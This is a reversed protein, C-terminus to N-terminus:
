DICHPQLLPNDDIFKRCLYGTSGGIIIWLLANAIGTQIIFQQWLEMLIAVAHPDPHSFGHIEPAPAGILHPLLILIVGAGKYYRPSFALVALGSATLIIALLWWNQRQNLAAAEMGPIEPPLGLSPAIFLSLYGAIGWALGKLTSCSGRFTMTSALILGYALSMLFNALFTFFNREIGTEPAWPEITSNISTETIEFTEAAFIIPNVFLFQYFSFAISALIATLSAILFLQRFYM